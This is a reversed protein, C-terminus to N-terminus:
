DPFSNEVIVNSSTAFLTQSGGFDVKFRIRYEGATDLDAAVWQYTVKGTTPDGNIAAPTDVKRSDATLQAMELTVLTANTLDVVTGSKDKITWEQTFGFSDKDYYIKAM